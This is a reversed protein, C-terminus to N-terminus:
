GGLQPPPLQTLAVLGSCQVSVSTSPQGGTSLACGVGNPSAPQLQQQGSVAGPFGGAITGGPLIVKVSRVATAGQKLTGDGQGVLQSRVVFYLTASAAIVSVAVATAVLVSLRTRFSM